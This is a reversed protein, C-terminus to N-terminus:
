HPRRRRRRLNERGGPRRYRAARACRVAGRRRAAAPAPRRLRPSSAINRPRRWAQLRRHQPSAPRQPAPRARMGVIREGTEMQSPQEVAGLADAHLQFLLFLSCVHRAIKGGAIVPENRGHKLIRAASRGIRPNSISRTRKSLGSGSASPKALDRFVNLVRAPRQRRETGALQTRRRREGFLSKAVEVLM